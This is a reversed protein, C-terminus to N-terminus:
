EPRAAAGDEVGERDISSVVREGASLGRTIATYEWNSIGPEIDRLEIQGLSENYVYVQNGEVIVSTPLRIVDDERALLIEVDASYGPLLAGKDADDIEAEIEVTRAQKEIDLVYPAVRRVHGSFTRDAFADLTIRAPLGERVAPADVEDIPASIYLCSSDILDVTPPTPVGIPSPTVFEGLEGNIEAIIGAFPAVLRTRELSAETVEIRAASVRAGDQAATCAAASSEALGVARDADEESALGDDLLMTLRNAERQAFDAIVCAERARSQAATADRQALRVEAKLDENWLELLLQGQEVVDGNAVPLLVIQGGMSPSLGARRCADVTGARTNSVTASVPGREVTILSVSIPEPRTLYWGGAVAALGLGIIIGYRKM